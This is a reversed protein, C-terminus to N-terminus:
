EAEKNATDSDHSARKRSGVYLLFSLGGLAGLCPGIMDSLEGQGRCFHLVDVAPLSLLVLVGLLMGVRRQGFGLSTFCGGLLFVSLGRLVFEPTVHHTAGRVALFLGSAIIAIGLLRTFTLNEESASM